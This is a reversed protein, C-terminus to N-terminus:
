YVAEKTEDERTIIVVSSVTNLWNSGKPDLMNWGESLRVRGNRWESDDVSGNRSQQGVIVGMNGHVGQFAVWNPKAEPTILDPHVTLVLTFTHQALPLNTISTSTSTAYSPPSTNNILISSTL